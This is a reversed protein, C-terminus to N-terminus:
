EHECIKTVPSSFIESQSLIIRLVSLMFKDYSDVRSNVNIVIKNYCRELKTTICLQREVLPSTPFLKKFSFIYVHQM